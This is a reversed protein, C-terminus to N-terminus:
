EKTFGHYKIEAAERCKIADSINVFSGLYIPGNYDITAVWRQKKKSWSVGTKGSTNNKRKRQDFAQAQKTAWECTEKSYLKVSNIRNLTMGEPRNGMDELFNRFGFEGLWRDCVVVGDGGYYSYNKFNKDYCRRKMNYWTEYTYAEEETFVVTNKQAGKRACGCSKTGNKLGTRRVVVEKGCDCLCKWLTQSQKSTGHYEIVLLRGYREGVINTFRHNWIEEM